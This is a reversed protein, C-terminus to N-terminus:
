APPLLSDMGVLTGDPVRVAGIWLGKVTYKSVVVEPTLTNLLQRKDDRSMLDFEVFPAFVEALTEPTLTPCLRQKQMLRSVSQRQTEIHKLRADREVGSIVGDFYSDLVRRRKNELASLQSALRESDDVLPQNRRMPSLVHRKLFSASTLKKTFIADLQPDLTDRRMYPAGCRIKCVYYDDRRFKTYLLSKCEACQLFGNYTFRHPGQTMSVRKERKQSMIRQAQDFDSETVLPVDIVKKRIVDEPARMIKPRDAQRGGAKFKKARPSPDRRKDIVRWGTYIPNRLIVRLTHPEIGIKRAISAYSTDGALLLRFGERVIEADPTYRWPYEVGFPLCIRSQSFGGERRKQEKIRWMKKVLERRELGGMVARMTGMLMGADSSFDIPGDPLYLLTETDVFAQLMAYDAFNEPRMLRSFERVIVGHIEPDGMLRIMEQIEPALLVQAGSVDSLEVTKVITLGYQAATQLNTARQSPISAKDGAQSETSVRLLEIARKM